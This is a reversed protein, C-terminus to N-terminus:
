QLNMNELYQKLHKLLTIIGYRAINENRLIIM